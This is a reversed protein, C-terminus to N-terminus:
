FFRQLASLFPPIHTASVVVTDDGAQMADTQATVLGLLGVSGDTQTYKL